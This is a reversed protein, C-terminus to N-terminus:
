TAKRKAPRLELGLVAALKAATSLRLDLGVNLFRYLVEPKLGADKAIRYATTGTKIRAEIAARLQDSIDVLM